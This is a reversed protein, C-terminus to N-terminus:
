LPPSTDRPPRSWVRVLKPDRESFDVKFGISELFSKSRKGEGHLMLELLDGEDDIDVSAYFSDFVSVNLGMDRAIRIHKLFSGYHYSVKFREDRVLLMNTGGKRGPAIVVDGDTEFFRRVIEESILPLDSMIVATEGRLRRNVAEDLDSDDEEIRVELELETGKPCLVIVDDAVPTVADLVDLLMRKALEVREELSLISSLRTKPNKLKFPIIVRM